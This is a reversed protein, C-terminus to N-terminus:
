VYGVETYLQLQLFSETRFAGLRKVTRAVNFPIIGGLVYGKQKM